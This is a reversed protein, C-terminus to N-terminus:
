HLDIDLVKITLGDIIKTDMSVLEVGRTFTSLGHHTLGANKLFIITADRSMAWYTPYIEGVVVVPVPSDQFLHGLEAIGQTALKGRAELNVIWVSKGNIEVQVWQMAGSKYLQYWAQPWTKARVRVVEDRTAVHTRMEHHFGLRPTIKSLVPLSNDILPGCKSFVRQFCYADADQARLYLELATPCKFDLDCSVLKV